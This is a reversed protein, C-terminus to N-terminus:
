RSAIATPQFVFGPNIAKGWLACLAMPVQWSSDSLSFVHRPPSPWGHPEAMWRKQAPLHRLHRQAWSQQFGGLAVMEMEWRGTLLRPNPDEYGDTPKPKKLPFPFFFFSSFSSFVFPEKEKREKMVTQALPSEFTRSKRQLDLELFCKKKLARKRIEKSELFVRFHFAVSVAATVKRVDQVHSVVCYHSAKASAWMAGFSHSRSPTVGESSDGRGKEAM